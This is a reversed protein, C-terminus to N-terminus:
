AAHEGKIWRKADHKILISEVVEKDNTGMANIVLHKSRTLQRFPIVHRM